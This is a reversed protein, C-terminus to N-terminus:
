QIKSTKVYPISGYEPSVLSFFSLKRGECINRNDFFNSM